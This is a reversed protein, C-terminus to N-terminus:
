GTCAGERNQCRLLLCLKDVNAPSALRLRKCEAPRTRNPHFEHARPDCRPKRGHGCRQRLVLRPHPRYWEPGASPLRRMASVDECFFPLAKVGTSRRRAAGNNESQRARKAAATTISKAFLLGKAAYAANNCPASPEVAPAASVSVCVVINSNVPSPTAIAKRAPSNLIPASPWSTMPAKHAATAPAARCRGGGISIANHKAAPAAPPAAHANMAPQSRARWPALSTIVVIM